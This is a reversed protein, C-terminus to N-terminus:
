LFYIYSLRDKLQEITVVSREAEKQYGQLLSEQSAFEREVEELERARLGGVTSTTKLDDNERRLATIQRRLGTIENDKDGLLTRLKVLQASESSPHPRPNGEPIGASSEFPTAQPQRLGLSASIAAAEERALIAAEQQKSSVGRKEKSTAALSAQHIHSPRRVSPKTALSLSQPVFSTDEM